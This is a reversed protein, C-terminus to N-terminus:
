AERLYDLAGHTSHLAARRLGPELGPYVREVVDEATTAGAALAARVQEVRERRHASLQAAADAISALVPGHGPLAAIPGLTHLRDLSRLYAALRGEVVTPGRGLVTDGTLVAPTAPHEVLVCVSDDTHGPTALVRTPLVDPSLGPVPLPEGESLPASGACLEPAYATVPCGTLERLRAAGGTHDAHHHTLVALLVPGSAALRRLHGEDDPGPDVVVTGGGTRLLWTNTGDLTM